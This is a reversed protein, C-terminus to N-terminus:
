PSRSNFISYLPPRTSQVPDPHVPDLSWGQGGRGYQCPHEARFLKLITVSNGFDIIMIAAEALVM